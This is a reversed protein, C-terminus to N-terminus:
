GGAVTELIDALVAAVAVQAPVANMLQNVGM